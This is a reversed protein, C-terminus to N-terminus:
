YKSHEKFTELMAVINEPPVDGQINHVTNFVFGGGPAFDEIRRKVEDKVEQISGYPLVHQTDVGGGWFTLDNGFERKIDKSDMGVASVQIPNLIDIGEEILLPIFPLSAGCTHYFIYVKTQACKKIHDFLITHYPQIMEKYMDVSLLQSNQTGLDDAESIILVDEGVTNLAKEWYSMKSETIREMLKNAYSKNLVMDMMYKPTGSMWLATEWIGAANRGLVYAKQREHMCYQARDKLHSYRREDFVNPFKYSELDEISNVDKLPGEGMDYYLGGKVQMRWKIGLENYFVNYGDEVTEDKPYNENPICRPDARLVDIGFMEIVDDDVQALQQTKDSCIVEKKELGLYDRLSRYANINIGTLVSGGLDLPVRDAEKHELATKVRELSNM